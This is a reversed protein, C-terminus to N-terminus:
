RNYAPKLRAQLRLRGLPRLCVRGVAGRSLTTGPRLNHRSDYAAWRGCAGGEGASRPPSAGVPVGEGGSQPPSAGM